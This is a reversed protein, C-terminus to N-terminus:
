SQLANINIKLRKKVNLKTQGKWVIKLFADSAIDLNMNINYTTM